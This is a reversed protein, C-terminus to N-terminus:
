LDSYILNQPLDIYFVSSGHAWQQVADSKPIIFFTKGRSTELRWERPVDDGHNHFYIVNSCDLCIKKGQIFNGQM